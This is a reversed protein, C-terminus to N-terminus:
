PMSKIRIKIECMLLVYHGPIYHSAEVKKAARATPSDPAPSIISSPIHSSPSLASPDTNTTASNDKTALSDTNCKKQVSHCLQSYSRTKASIGDKRKCVSQGVPEPRQFVRVSPRCIFNELSKPPKKTRKAGPRIKAKMIGESRDAEKVTLDQLQMDKDDTVESFFDLEESKNKRTKKRGETGEYVEGREAAPTPVDSKRKKDM